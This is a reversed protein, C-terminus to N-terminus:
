KSGTYGLQKAKDFDARAEADKGLLRFTEGRNYYSGPNDPNLRIDESYDSIAKDFDALAEAAKGLKRYALGRYHYADASNVDSSLVRNFDSIANDYDGKYYYAVGRCISAWLDRSDLNMAENFDSIAKNYDRKDGYVMGRWVFARHDSVDLRIAENFDGIAKDYDKEYYYAKGRRNYAWANKPNSAVLQGYYTIIEDINEGRHFWRIMNYFPVDESVPSVTATPAPTPTITATPTPVPTSTATSPNSSLYAQRGVRVGFYISASIGIVLFCLAIPLFSPKRARKGEVGESRAAAVAERRLASEVKRKLGRAGVIGDFNSSIEFQRLLENVEDLIRELDSLHVAQFLEMRLRTLREASASVRPRIANILRKCDDEFSTETITLANHLVLLKLNEPLDDAGPMSAGDLLVPIVRIERDLAAGIEMRVFDGPKNLRRNGRDDQCTLWNKGIVAILVDCKAVTTEIVKSFNEGPEISDLDMFIQESDFVRRLRERLIMTAWQSEGRRYSIFIQARMKEGQVSPEALIDL